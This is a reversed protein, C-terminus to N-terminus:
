RGSQVPPLTSAMVSPSVQSEEAIKMLAVHAAQFETFDDEYVHWRDREKGSMPQVRRLLPTGDPRAARMLLDVTHVDVGLEAAAQKKSVCPFLPPASLIWRFDQRDVCLASFDNRGHLRFLPVKGELALRIVRDAQWHLHKAAKGIPEVYLSVGDIPTALDFMKALFDDLSTTKVRQIANSCRSDPRPFEALIRTVHGDALIAAATNADCGLYSAVSSAPISAKLEAAIAEGRAVSFASNGTAGEPLLGVLEAVASVMNRSLGFGSALSAVSHNRRALLATGLLNTGADLAFNEVVFEIFLDRIPGADTTKELWRFFSGFAIQPSSDRRFSRSGRLVDELGVRIGDAGSALYDYGIADADNAQAGTMEQNRFKPGHLVVSGLMRAARAAQDISQGDMWAPGAIGALRNEVYTQLSSVAQPSSVDCLRDLESGTPYLTSPVAFMEDPDSLPNSYEWVVPFDTMLTKWSQEDPTGDPKLKPRYGQKRAMLSRKHLRLREVIAEKTM